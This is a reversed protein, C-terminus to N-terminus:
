HHRKSGKKPNFTTTAYATLPPVSKNELSTRFDKPNAVVHPPTILSLIKM